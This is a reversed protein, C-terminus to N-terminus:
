HLPDNPVTAVGELHKGLKAVLTTVGTSTVRWVNGVTDDSIGREQENGTVVILDGGAVCFRDQFISGRVLAPETFNTAADHLTVWPNEVVSGDFSIRVIEGPNGNGTFVTGPLFGGTCSTDRVSALKLENTLGALASFPTPIANAPAVLDLNNPLGTPYNVSMILQGAPEHFDIGIPTNFTFNSFPSLNVDAAAAPGSSTLLAVFTVVVGVVLRAAQRM